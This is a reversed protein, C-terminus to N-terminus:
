HKELLRQLRHKKYYLAISQKTPKDSDEIRPSTARSLAVYLQGHSCVPEPLYVGSKSLSQGQSKNITMAYCLKVPFQTRKFTFSLNPDKHTLPIKHIFVKKGIRTGTIIQAEILNLMLSQVIMRTSNCLDGYLHVNRLLIIPLGVKVQLEHPSFGPFTITNLYEMPYLMETESTERDMLIADDKSLYTKIQGKIASLIKANVVDVIDNKPCVIAKEQLAAANPTKLTNDDYIFDILASMGKEGPSVCYEPSFTIWSSDQSDDQDPEGIEGNGMDLLRKAFVKSRRREDNDLGSRLLRM